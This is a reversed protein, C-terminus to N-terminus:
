KGKGRSGKGSREEYPARWMFQRKSATAGSLPLEVWGWPTVLIFRLTIGQNALADVHAAYRVVDDFIFTDSIIWVRKCNPRNFVAAYDIATRLGSEYDPPTLSVVVVDPRGEPRRINPILDVQEELEGLRAFLADIGEGEDEEGGDEFLATFPDMGKEAPANVTERMWGQIQALADLIYQPYETESIASLLDNITLGDGKEQSSMDQEHNMNEEGSKGNKLSKFV